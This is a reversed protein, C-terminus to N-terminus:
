APGVAPMADPLILIKGSAGAEMTRFAEVASDLPFRAAIGASLPQTRARLLTSGIISALEGVPVVGARPGYKTVFISGAAMLQALDLPPVAGTLQGYNVLCGRPALLGISTDWTAAGIPDFVAGAGRGESCELVIARIDEQCRDIARSAGLARVAETREGSAIGIVHIGREVLRSVLLRGVAGAAGWIVAFAGPALPWHRALGEATVAAHALTAADELAIDDPVPALLDARAVVHTACSGFVATWCVRAHTRMTVNAGVAVVTGAGEFGIAYPFPFKLSYTGSRALSDVHNLGAAEVRILAEDARLPSLRELEVAIVDPGGAKTARAVRRCHVDTM